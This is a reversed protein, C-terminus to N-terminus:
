HPKNAKKGKEVEHPSAAAISGPTARFAPYMSRFSISLNASTPTGDTFWTYLDNGESYKVSFKELVMSRFQIFDKSSVGRNQPNIISIDFIPPYVMVNLMGEIVNPRSATTSNRFAAVVSKMIKGEEEDIPTFKVNFSMERSSNGLFVMAENPAMRIGSASEGVQKLMAMKTNNHAMGVAVNTVNSVIASGDAATADTPQKGGTMKKTDGTFAVKNNTKWEASMSDGFGGEIYTSFSFLTKERVILVGNYVDGSHERSPLSPMSYEYATFRVHVRDEIELPYAWSETM